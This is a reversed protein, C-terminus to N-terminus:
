TKPTRCARYSGTGHRSEAATTDDKNGAQFPDESAGFTTCEIQRVRQRVRQTNPGRGRRDVRVHVAPRRGAPTGHIDAGTGHTSPRSWFVAESTRRARASRASRGSAITALVFMGFTTHPRVLRTVPAVVATQRCHSTFAVVRNLSRRNRRASWAVGTTTVDATCARVHSPVCWPISWSSTWRTGLATHRAGACSGTGDHRARAQPQLRAGEDTAHERVQVRPLIM